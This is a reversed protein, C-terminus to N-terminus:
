ARNLQGIYLSSSYEGKVNQLLFFGQPLLAEDLRLTM